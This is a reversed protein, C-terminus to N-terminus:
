ASDMETLSAQETTESDDSVTPTKDILQCRACSTESNSIILGCDACEWCGPGAHSRAPPVKSM